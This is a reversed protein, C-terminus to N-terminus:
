TKKMLLPRVDAVTLTSNQSGAVDTPGPSAAEYM